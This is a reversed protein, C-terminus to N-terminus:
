GLNEKSRASGLDKARGESCVMPVGLFFFHGMVEGVGDGEVTMLALDKNHLHSALLSPLAPLGLLGLGLHEWNIVLSRCCIILTGTNVGLGWHVDPSQFMLTNLILWKVLQQLNEFRGYNGLSM